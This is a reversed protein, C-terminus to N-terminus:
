IEGAAQGALSWLEARTLTDDGSVLALEGPGDSVHSEFCDILPRGTWWGSRRYREAVDDVM